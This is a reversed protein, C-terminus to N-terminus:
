QIHFINLNGGLLSDDTKNYIYAARREYGGGSEAAPMSVFVFLGDPYVLPTKATRIQLLFSSASILLLFFLFFVPLRPPFLCNSPGVARRRKISFGGASTFGFGQCLHIRKIGRGLFTM